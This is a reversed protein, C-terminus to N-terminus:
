WGFWSSIQDGVTQKGQERREKKAKDTEQYMEGIQIGLRAGAAIEAVIAKEEVEREKPSLGEVRKKLLAQTKPPLQDATILAKSTSTTTTSTPSTTSFDKDTSSPLIPPFSPIPEGAAKAAEIAREQDLMRHYLTDAHMQIKEDLEAPREFTSLYGLAKLFRAQMMYCRELQKNEARCMTMRAKWGGNRFCDNVEWHELACNELAARGVQAKREKYGQLIDLLKDQDSKTANEIELLPRYTKWLHAYRGDQYLSERPVSSESSHGSSQQSPPQQSLNLQDTYSKPPEPPPPPTAQAESATYKIPSEKKLFERLTPDLKGLPDNNPSDSSEKNSSSDWFWGM